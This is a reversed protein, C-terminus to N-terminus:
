RRRAQIVEETHAVQCHQKVRAWEEAPIAPRAKASFSENLYALMADPDSGPELVCRHYKPESAQQGNEVCFTAIQVEVDGSRSASVSNVITVFM